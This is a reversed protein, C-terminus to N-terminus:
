GYVADLGGIANNIKDAVINALEEVDQGVAGYTNFTMEITKREVPQTNGNFTFGSLTTPIDTLADEVSDTNSEIGVAIGAPIWKGIEDRFLKSPSGIRFFSRAANFADSAMGLLTNKLAGAGWHLGNVVGQVIASGLSGWNFNSVANYATNAIDRLANPISRALSKIGNGILNVIKSGLQLWNIASIVSIVAQLINGMNDLIVYRNDWLGKALTVIIELAAKIIKPLNDNITDAIQIVIQPIYAILDPMANVIGQAIAKLMSIGADVLNGINERLGTVFNLIVPLAASIMASVNSAMGQALSNMLETGNQFILTGMASFVNGVMPVLNKFLLDSASTVLQQIPATLDMGLSMSALVNQWASRVAAASGTLTESAEKAAVGTLGLETQIVHIADYVDGLNNIDYKVGSLKSADKLLREMETRTGGYGLKLNDLMTYNQKAFGQYANQISQIDTGMKASNDAMDLIATNAAEMAKQTDGGFAQKLAAGFSVAQEAYTNADIGAQAAAMAYEKAGEAADGYLTELGGFSQQLAGGAALASKVTDGLVKGIGAAVLAGKIRSALTKGASDGASAAENDFAEQLTGKVGKMSPVVHVYATAIQTGDAM